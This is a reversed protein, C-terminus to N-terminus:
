HFTAQVWIRTYCRRGTSIWVWRSVSGPCRWRSSPPGGGLLHRINQSGEQSMFSSSYMQSTMYPNYQSYGATTTGDQSQGQGPPPLPPQPASGPPGPPPNALHHGHHKPSANKSGSKSRSGHRDRELSEGRGAPSPSHSQRHHGEKRSAKAPPGVIFVYM